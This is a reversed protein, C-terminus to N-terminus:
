LGRVSWLLLRSAGRIPPMRGQYARARAPSADRTQAGLADIAGEAEAKGVVRPIAWLTELHAALTARFISVYFSLIGQGQVWSGHNVHTM